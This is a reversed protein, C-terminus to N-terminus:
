EPEEAKWEEPRPLLEKLSDPFDVRRTNQNIEANEESTKPLLMVNRIDIPTGDAGVTFWAGFMDGENLVHLKALLAPNIPVARLSLFELYCPVKRVLKAEHYKPLERSRTFARYDIQNCIHRFCTTETETLSDTWLKSYLELFRRAILRPLERAGHLDVRLDWGIVELTGDQDSYGLRLPTTAKLSNSGEVPFITDAYVLEIDFNETAVFVDRSFDVPRSTEQSEKLVDESADVVEVAADALTSTM